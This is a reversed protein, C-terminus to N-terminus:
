IIKDLIVITGSTNVCLVRDGEAVTSSALRKYTKQTPTTSGPLILSSGNESTESITAVFINDTL